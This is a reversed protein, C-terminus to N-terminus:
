KWSKSLLLYYYSLYIVLLFQVDKYLEIKM